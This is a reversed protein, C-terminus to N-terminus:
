LEFIDGIIFYPYNWDVEVAFRRGSSFSVNLFGQKKELMPGRRIYYSIANPAIIPRYEYFYYLLIPTEASSQGGGEEYGFISSRDFLCAHPSNDSLYFSYGDGSNCSNYQYTYFLYLSIYSSDLCISDIVELCSLRCGEKLSRVWLATSDKDPYTRRQSLHFVLDAEGDNDVDLFYLTDRNVVILSDNLTRNDSLPYKVGPSIPPLPIIEKQCASLVFLLILSQLLLKQFNNMSPNNEKYYSRM